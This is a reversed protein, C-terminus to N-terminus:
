QSYAEDYHLSQVYAKKIATTTTKLRVFFYNGASNGVASTVTYVLTGNIYYKLSVGNVFECRYLNWDTLTIGSITHLQEASANDYYMVSLTGNVVKFGYGDPVDPDGHMIYVNQNTIQDLKVRAEFIPDNANAGGEQQSDGPAAYLNQTNNTSATTALTVEGLASLTVGSTKSWADLSSFHEDIQFRDFALKDRYVSRALHDIIDAAKHSELSQNTDLHASADDDHQQVIRAIAQEITESDTQSKLLDGWITAPMTLHYILLSLTFILTIIYLHKGM